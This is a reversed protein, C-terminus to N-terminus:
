ANGKYASLAAAQANNLAAKVTSTNLYIAAVANDTATQVADINVGTPVITVKGQATPTLATADVGLKKWASVYVGSLSTVAPQLAGTAAMTKQGTASSVYEVFKVAQQANKDNAPISDCGANITGIRGKPGSPLSAVGWKFKAGASIASVLWDGGQLLATKNSLFQGEEAGTNPAIVTSGPPAVHYKYMLNWIFQYAAVNQRTNVTPAGNAGTTQYGGGNEAMYVDAFTQTSDPSLALGYRVIDKSNFGPQTANKGNADVTLKELFPVLTGAGSPTWTLNTPYSSYGAKALDAKNYYMGVTDVTWPLGYVDKGVSCNAVSFPAYQAMNVKAKKLYPTLNLLVHDAEYQDIFNPILVFADPATGSVLGTQLKTFYDAYPVQEVNVKISPNAKEFAAITPKFAYKLQNPDWHSFTITVANSHPRSSAYSSASPAFAAVIAMVSLVAVTKIPAGRLRFM